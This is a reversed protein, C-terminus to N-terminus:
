EKKKTSKKQNAAEIIIKNARYEMVKRVVKSVAAVVFILGITFLLVPWNEKLWKLLRIWWPDPEPETPFIPNDPGQHIPINIQSDDVNSEVVTAHYHDGEYDYYIEDLSVLKVSFQTNKSTGWSAIIVSSASVKNTAKYGSKGILLGYQFDSLKVTGILSANVDAVLKTNKTSFLYPMTAIYNKPKSGFLYDVISMSDVNVPFKNEFTGPIVSMRQYISKLETSDRYSIIDFISKDGNKNSDIFKDYEDFSLKHVDKAYVQGNGNLYTTSITRDAVTIGLVDTYKVDNVFEQLYEYYTYDIQTIVENGSWKKGTAADTVNFFYYFYDMYVDKDELIHPSDGAIVGLSEHGLRDYRLRYISGDAKATTENYVIATTFHKKPIKVLNSLLATAEPNDVNKELIFNFQQKNLLQKGDLLENRKVVNGGDRTFEIIVADFITSIITHQQTKSYDNLLIKKFSENLYNKSFTLKYLANYNSVTLWDYTFTNQEPTVEIMTDNQLISKEQVTIQTNISKVEYYPSYVYMIIENEIEDDKFYLAETFTIIQIQRETKDLYKEFPIELFTLDSILNSNISVGQYYQEEELLVPNNVKEAAQEYWTDGSASVNTLAVCTFLSLLLTLLLLKKKM